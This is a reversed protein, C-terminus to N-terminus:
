KEECIFLIKGEPIVVQNGLRLETQRCTSNDLKIRYAESDKGLEVGIVTFLWVGSLIFVLFCLSPFYVNLFKNM